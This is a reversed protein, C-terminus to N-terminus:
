GVGFTFIKPSPANYFHLIPVVNRFRPEAETDPVFSSLSRALICIHTIEAYSRQPGCTKNQVNTTNSDPGSVLELLPGLVYTKQGRRGQKVQLTFCYGAKSVNYNIIYVVSWAWFFWKMSSLGCPGFDNNSCIKAVIAVSTVTLM